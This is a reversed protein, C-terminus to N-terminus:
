RSTGRQSGDQQGSELCRHSRCRDGFVNLHLGYNTRIVPLSLDNYMKASTILLAVVTVIIVALRYMVKM